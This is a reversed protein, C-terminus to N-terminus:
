IAPIGLMIEFNSSTYTHPSRHISARTATHTCSLFIHRDLHGHTNLERPKNKHIKIVYESLNYLFYSM